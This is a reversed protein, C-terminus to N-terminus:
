KKKKKLDESDSFKFLQSTQGRLISVLVPVITFAPILYLFIPHSTQFVSNIRIVIAFSVVYAISCTYFYIKPFPKSMFEPKNSNQDTIGKLSADLRFLSSIIVGPLAIDGVNASIVNILSFPDDKFMLFLFDGVDDDLKLGLNNSTHTGIFALIFLLFFEWLFFFAYPFAVKLEKIIGVSLCVSLIIAVVWNRGGFVYLLNLFIAISLSVADNGNFQVYCSTLGIKFKKKQLIPSKLSILSLISSIVSNLIIIGGLYFISAFITYVLKGSFIESM